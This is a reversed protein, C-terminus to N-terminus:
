KKELVFHGDTHLLGDDQYSSHVLRFSRHTSFRAAAGPYGNIYEMGYKQDRLFANSIILKGKSNLLSAANTLAEDLPEVIYWLIQEFIVVDFPREKIVAFTEQSMINAVHYEFEPFLERARVLAHKSIDMGVLKCPLMNQIEGMTHGAGCGVVLVSKPSELALLDRTRARSTKYYEQMRPELGSQGWPDAENQYYADFDGVFELKGDASKKFIFENSVSM